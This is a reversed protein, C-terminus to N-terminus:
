KKTFRKPMSMQRSTDKKKMSQMWFAEELEDDVMREPMRGHWDLMGEKWLKDFDYQLPSEKIM